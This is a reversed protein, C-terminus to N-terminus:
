DDHHRDSGPRDRRDDDRDRDRDRDRDDSGISQLGADLGFPLSQRSLGVGWFAALAVLLLVATAASGHQLGADAPGRKRGTLMAAVLNERHLLSSVIAGVIHLCVLVLMATALAEHADDLGDSGRGSAMLWGVTATALGLALLGWVALSGVPNHGVVDEPRGRLMSILYRLTGSPGHLFSSFRAHRSGVLGWALRFLILGLLSYGFLAHIFRNADDDSTLWAGAFCAVLSWHFVRVPWDWVLIRPPSQTPAPDHNAM